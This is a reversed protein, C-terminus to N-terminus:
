SIGGSLVKEKVQPLIQTGDPKIINNIEIKTFLQRHGKKKRERVKSKYHFVIIKDDKGEAICTANVSADKVTPTGIIRQDGDVILLVKEFNIVKDPVADLFNVNLKEGPTVKYQKGAIEVIAYNEKAM